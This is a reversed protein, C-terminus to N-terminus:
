DTAIITSPKVFITVRSISSLSSACISFKRLISRAIDLSILTIKIFSALFSQIGEDITKNKMGKRLWKVFASICKAGVSLIIIAALLKLGFSTAFQILVTLINKWDM